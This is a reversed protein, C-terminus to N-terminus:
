NISDGTDGNNIVHRSKSTHENRKTPNDLKKNTIIM